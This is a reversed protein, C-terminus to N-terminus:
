RIACPENCARVSSAICSALVSYHVLCHVTHVRHLAGRSAGKGGPTGDARVWWPPRSSRQRGRRM